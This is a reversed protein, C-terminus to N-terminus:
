SNEYNRKWRERMKRCGSKAAKQGDNIIPYNASKEPVGIKRNKVTNKAYSLKLYNSVVKPEFESGDEAPFLKTRQFM